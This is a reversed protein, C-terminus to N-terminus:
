KGTTLLKLNDKILVELLFQMKPRTLYLPPYSLFSKLLNLYLERTPMFNNRGYYRCAIDYYIVSFAKSRLRKYDPNETFFKNLLKFHYKKTSELDLSNTISEDHTLKKVLPEDIYSCKGLALLRLWLDWDEGTKFEQNFDGTRDLYSKKLIVTSPYPVTKFPDTILKETFNQENHNYRYIKTRNSGKYLMEFASYIMCVDDEALIKDLQVQLKEPKWIDDADLFAIYEGTSNKIGNNRAVAVGANKQYIYKIRLDDFFDVIKKTNDTSGDDIIILELDSHTQNLVSKVASSIYEESNYAPIIVSVKM